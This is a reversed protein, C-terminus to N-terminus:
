NLINNVYITKYLTFKEKKKECLFPEAFNGECLDAYADNVSEIGFKDFFDAEIMNYLEKCSYVVLQRGESNFTKASNVLNTLNEITQTLTKM